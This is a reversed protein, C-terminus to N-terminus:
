HIGMFSHDLGVYRAGVHVCLEAILAPDEPGRAMMMREEDLDSSAYGYQVLTHRFFQVSAAPIEVPVWLHHNAFRCGGNQAWRKEVINNIM